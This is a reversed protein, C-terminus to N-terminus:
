KLFFHEQSTRVVLNALHGLAHCFIFFEYSINQTTLVTSKGLRTRNKFNRINHLCVFHPVFHLIKYVIYYIKLYSNYSFRFNFLYMRTKIIIITLTYSATSRQSGAARLGGAHGADRGHLKTTNQADVFICM